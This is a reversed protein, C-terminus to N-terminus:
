LGERLGRMTHNSETPTGDNSPLQLFGLEDGRAEVDEGVKVAKGHEMHANDSLVIQDTSGLSSLGTLGISTDNFPRLRRTGRLFM